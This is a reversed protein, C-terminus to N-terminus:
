PRPPIGRVRPASGWAVSAASVADVYEGCVRPQDQATPRRCRHTRYEGCVRPQDPTTHSDALPIPTNGACAPSIGERRARHAGTARIGACAPQDRWPTVMSGTVSTNGCM